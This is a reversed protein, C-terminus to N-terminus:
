LGVASISPPFFRLCVHAAVYAPMYAHRGIMSVKDVFERFNKFHGKGHNKKIKTINAFRKWVNKFSWAAEEEELDFDLSTSKQWCSWKM